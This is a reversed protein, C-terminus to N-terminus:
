VSGEYRDRRGPYFTVVVIEDEKEVFVVRLVHREDLEGQAVQRGHHGPQVLDPRRLVAVVQSRGVSCGHQALEVFKNNAHSTFRIAKM